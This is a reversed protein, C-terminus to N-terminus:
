RILFFLELGILLYATNQAYPRFICALRFLYFPAFLAVKRGRKAGGAPSSGTAQRKPTASIRQEDTATFRPFVRINSSKVTTASSTIYPKKKSIKM